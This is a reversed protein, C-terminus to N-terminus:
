TLALAKNYDPSYSVIHANATNFADIAQSLEEIGTLDLRDFDEYGAEEIQQLISDLNIHAFREESCTWLYEPM